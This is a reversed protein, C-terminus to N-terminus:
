YINLQSTGSVGKYTDTGNYVCVVGYVGVALTIPLNFYGNYDSIVTYTKSQGNSNSLTVYIYHGAIPVNNANKLYGSFAEGSGYPSNFPNIELITEERSDESQNARLISITSFSNGVYNKDNITSRITYEGPALNIPLIYRGNYDTTVDYVKNAGSSLRTVNLLIHYGMLINGDKDKLIGTFNNNNGYIYTIKSTDEFIANSPTGTLVLYKLDSESPLYNDNNGLYEAKASYDGSALKIELSFEGSSNTNLTYTKSQNNSLRKLTLNINASIPNENEDKLIGKLNGGNELEIYSLTISTKLSTNEQKKVNVTTNITKTYSQNIYTIKVPILGTTNGIQIQIEALGNTVEKTYEKNLIEVKVNGTNVNQNNAYKVTVPITLNTNEKTEMNPASIIIDNELPIIIKVNKTYNNYKNEGTYILTGNYEGAQCNINLNAHNNSVTGSGICTDTVRLEVSGENINSNDQSLLYVTLTKNTIIFTDDIVTINIKETENENQVQITINSIYQTYNNDGAYQFNKYEGTINAPIIFIGNTSTKINKNGEPSTYTITKNNLGENTSTELYGTINEGLKVNTTNFRIITQIKNNTYVQLIIDSYELNNTTIFNNNKGNELGITINSTESLDLEKLDFIFTKNKIQGRLPLKETNGNITYYLDQNFNLNGPYTLNGTITYSEGLIYSINNKNLNIKFVQEAPTVTVESTSVTNNHLADGNFTFNKYTGVENALIYFRGNTDTQTNKVEGLPNIYTITKNYLGGYEDTLLGTIYNDQVLSNQQIKITSPIKINGKVILVTDLDLSLNNHTIVSNEQGYQPGVTITFNNTSPTTYLKNLDIKFTKSSLSITREDSDYAPTATGINGNFWVWLTDWMISDSPYNITGTIYCDTSTYKVINENIIVQYKGKTINVITNSTHSNYEDDGQFNFNSYQGLYETVIEFIGNANTTTSKIGDPTNYYIVKNSLGNYGDTLLGTIKDGIAVSTQNIWIVTNLKDNTNVVVTLPHYEASIVELSLAFPSPGFYLRHIGSTLKSDIDKLDFDISHVNYNYSTAVFGDGDITDVYVNFTGIYEYDETEIFSPYSTSVHIINSEGPTYNVISTNTETIYIDDNNYENLDNLVESDEAFVQQASLIIFIIILLPLLKKIKM